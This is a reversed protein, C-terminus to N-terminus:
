EAGESQNIPIIAPPSLARLFEISPASSLDSEAMSSRFCNSIVIFSRTIPILQLPAACYTIDAKSYAFSFPDFVAYRIVFGLGKKDVTTSTTILISVPGSIIVPEVLIFAPVAVLIANFMIEVAVM